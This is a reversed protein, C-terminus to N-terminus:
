LEQSYLYLLVLQVYSDRFCLDEGQKIQQTEMIMRDPITCTVTKLRYIMVNHTSM